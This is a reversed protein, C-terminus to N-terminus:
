RTRYGVKTMGYRLPGAPGEIRAAHRAAPLSELLVPAADALQQVEHRYVALVLAERTPFHQYRTGIGVGAQKGISNVSAANSATLAIQAM